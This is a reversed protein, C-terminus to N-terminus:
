KVLFYEDSSKLFNNWDNGTNYSNSKFEDKTMKFTRYKSGNKRITFTRALRNASVKIEQGSITKKIKEM